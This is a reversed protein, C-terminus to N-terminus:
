TWDDDEVSTFLKTVFKEVASLVLIALGEGYQFGKAVLDWTGV